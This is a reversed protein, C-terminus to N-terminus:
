WQVGPDKIDDANDLSELVEDAEDYAEDKGEEFAIDYVEEGIKAVQTAIMTRLTSRSAGVREVTDFCQLIVDTLKETTRELTETKM